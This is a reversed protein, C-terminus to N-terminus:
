AGRRDIHVVWMMGEELTIRAEYGVFENSVGRAPGMLLSGGQLSYKLGETYIGKADGGIPLLSLLDGPHGEVIMTDRGQLLRVAQWGDVIATERYRLEPRTLLLLNAIEHDIRGGLAGLIVIEDAGRQVAYLIALEGDTKDKDRPHRIVPIGQRELQSLRERSLSDFDGILVDPMLGLAAANEGGGDAAVVLTPDGLMRRLFPTDHVKQSTIIVAKM